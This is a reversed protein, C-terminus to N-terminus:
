DDDLVVVTSPAVDDVNVPSAQSNGGGIVEYNSDCDELGCDGRHAHRACFGTVYEFSPGPDKMHGSQRCDRIKKFRYWKVAPESCGPQQCVQREQERSLHEWDAGESAAIWFWPLASVATQMSTFQRQWVVHGKRFFRIRASIRWEDGSLGSTKFRPVLDIRVDDIYEDDEHRRNHTFKAM